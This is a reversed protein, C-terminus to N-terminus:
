LLAAAPRGELEKAQHLQALLRSNSALEVAQAAGHRAASFLPPHRLLTSAM